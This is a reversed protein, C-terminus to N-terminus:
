AAEGQIQEELKTAHEVLKKVQELMESKIKEAESLQQDVLRDVDAKQKEVATGAGVNVLFAGDGEWRAKVFIGSAIPVFLPKNKDVADLEAVSAKTQVLEMTQQELLQLQQQLQRLQQHIMQLQMFKEQTEKQM